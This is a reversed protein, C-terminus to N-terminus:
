KLWPMLKSPRTPEVQPVVDDDVVQATNPFEKHV